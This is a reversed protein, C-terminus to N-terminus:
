PHVIIFRNNCHHLNVEFKGSNLYKHLRSLDITLHILQATKNLFSSCTFLNIMLIPTLFPCYFESKVGDKLWRQYCKVVKSKFAPVWKPEFREFREFFPEFPEFPEFRELYVDLSYAWTIATIASLPVKQVTQVSQVKQVAPSLSWFPKIKQSRNSRKSSKRGRIELLHIPWAHRWTRM